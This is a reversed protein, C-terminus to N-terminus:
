RFPQFCALARLGRAEADLGTIDGTDTEVLWLGMLRTDERGEVVWRYPTEQAATFAELPPSDPHPTPEPGPTPTPVPTPTAGSTPTPTPAPDPAAFCDYTAVWVRVAAQEGTLTTVSADCSGFVLRAREDLPEVEGTLADVRWLGYSTVDTRGEVLWQNKVDLIASFDSLAPFDQSCSYVGSWVRVAALEPTDILAGGGFQADPDGFRPPTPDSELLVMPFGCELGSNVIRDSVRDDPTAQLRSGESVRWTGFTVTFDATNVEAIWSRSADSFRSDFFLLLPASVGLSLSVEETCTAIAELVASEAEGRTILPPLPTPTPTPLVTQPEPTPTPTPATTPASTQSASGARAAPPDGGVCAAFVFLSTAALVPLAFKFDIRGLSFSGGRSGVYAM